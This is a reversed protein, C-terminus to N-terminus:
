AARKKLDKRVEGILEDLGAYKGDSWDQTFGERVEKWLRNMELRALLREVLELEEAPLEDILKHLVPRKQELMFTTQDNM